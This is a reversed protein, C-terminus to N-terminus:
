ASDRFAPGGANYANRSGAFRHALLREPDHYFSRTSQYHEDTPSNLFVMNPHFDFVKLGARDLGLRKVDFGTASAKMDFHDAYFTPIALLDYELRIPRLGAVLPLRMTCDYQLGCRRAIPIMSSDSRLGHSRYGLAEPAFAHTRTFAAEYLESDSIEDGVHTSLVSRVTDGDRRFNPHLGREHEASM